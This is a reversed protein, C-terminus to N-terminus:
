EEEKEEEVHRIMVAKGYATYRQYYMSTPESRQYTRESYFRVEILGDAFYFQADSIMRRELISKEYQTPEFHFHTNLWPISHSLTGIEVHKYPVDASDNYIRFQKYPEGPTGSLDLVTYGCGFNLVLLILIPITRM